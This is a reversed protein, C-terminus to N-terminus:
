RRTELVRLREDLREMMRRLESAHEANIQREGELKEQISLRALSAAERSEYSEAVSKQMERRLSEVATQVTANTHLVVIAAVVMIIPNAISFISKLNGVFNGNGNGNTEPMEPLEM